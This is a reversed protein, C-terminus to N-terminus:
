CPHEENFISSRSNPRKLGYPPHGAKPLCYFRHSGPLGNGSRLPASASRSSAEPWFSLVHLIHGKRCTHILIPYKMPIVFIQSQCRHSGTSVYFLCFSIKPSSGYRSSATQLMRKHSSKSKRSKPSVLLLTKQQLYNAGKRQMLPITPICLAQPSHCKM